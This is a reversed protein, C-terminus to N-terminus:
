GEGGEIAKMVTHAPLWLDICAGHPAMNSYRVWGTEGYMLQLSNSINTLGISDPKPNAESEGNLYKLMQAPFGYGTDCIVIHAMQAGSKEELKASINLLVPADPTLAHKYINEVYTHLLMHPIPWSLVGEDIDIFPIIDGGHLVAQMAMYQRLHEIEEQLRVTHLGTKFMYRIVSYLSEVFANIKDPHGMKNMSHITTLINLFFHPKVQMQYYKWETEHLRIRREYSDLRLRLLEDLAANFSRNIQQFERNHCKVHVRWNMEGGKVHEAMDVLEGIPRFVERIFFARLLLTMGVTFLFFLVALAPFVANGLMVERTDMLCFLRADLIPVDTSVTWYPNRWRMPIDERLPYTVALNEDMSYDMLPQGDADVLLYGFHDETPIDELSSFLVSADVFGMLSVDGINIHYLFFPQDSIYVCRWRRPFADGNQVLRKAYDVFRYTDGNYRTTNARCISTQRLNDMLLIVDVYQNIFLREEITKILRITAFYRVTDNDSVFSLLDSHHYLLTNLELNANDLTSALNRECIDLVNISAGASSKSIESFGFVTLILLVAFIFATLVALMSILPSYLSKWPKKMATMRETHKM